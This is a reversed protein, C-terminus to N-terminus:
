KLFNILKDTIKSKVDDANTISILPVAFVNGKEFIKKFKGQIDASVKTNDFNFAEGDPELDNEKSLYGFYRAYHYDWNEGVEATGYDFFGATILPEKITYKRDWHDDILVSVYALRNPYKQPYDKHVYFRFICIPIWREPNLISSSSDSIGPGFSNWDLEAMQEDVTRLLLSIQACLKRMQKVLAIVAEGNDM